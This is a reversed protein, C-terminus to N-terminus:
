NVQKVNLIRHSEINIYRTLQNRRGKRKKKIKKLKIKHTHTDCQHRRIIKHETTLSWFFVSTAGVTHKSKSNAIKADFQTLSRTLYWSIKPFTKGKLRWIFQSTSCSCKSDWLTKNFIWPCFKNNIKVVTKILKM